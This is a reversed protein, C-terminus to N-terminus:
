LPVEVSLGVTRSVKGGGRQLGGGGQPPITMQGLFCPFYQTGFAGFFFEIAKPM